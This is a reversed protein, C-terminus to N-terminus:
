CILIFHEGPMENQQFFTEEKESNYIFVNRLCQGLFIGEAVLICFLLYVSVCDCPTFSVGARM